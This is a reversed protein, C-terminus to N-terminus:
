IDIGEESLQQLLKKLKSNNPNWNRLLTIRDKLEQLQIVDKKITGLDLTEEDIDNVLDDVESDVVKKRDKADWTEVQTNGNKLALSGFTSQSVELTPANGIGRTRVGIQYLPLESQPPGDLKVAIVPVGKKKTMVLKKVIENEIKERIAQKETENTLENYQKYLEGVGFINVLSQRDMEVAPDEGFITKFDGLPEKPFLTDVIHTDNIIKQKMKNRREPSEEFASYLSDAMENDLGRLRSYIRHKDDIESDKSFSAFFKIDDGTKITEMSDVFQSPTVKSLYEDIQEESLGKIDNNSLGFVKQILWRKRKRIADPKPGFTQNFEKPNNLLREAVSEFTKRDSKLLESAVSIINNRLENYREPQCEKPLKVGLSEEFEKLATGYGGNVIFVKFGKKLSIGITKGDKTKVFMDASTGHGTSGVLENGEPTDWAFDEINDIGITDNLYDLVSVGSKVWEKTLVSDPNNAINLLEKQLETRAEEYDMESKLLEQIRKGAYVTVSEGTRSEATGMGVGKQSQAAEKKTMRIQKEVKESDVKRNKQQKEVDISVQTQGTKKNKKQVDPAHSFSSPGKVNQQPEEAQSQEGGASPGSQPQQSKDDGGLENNIADREKTGDKPLLKEAAIRGPNDKPNSLLNGVLGKQEKGDKNQYTVIKNLIPNKFIPKLREEESKDEENLLNEILQNKIESLGLDSLVESLVWIHERNKPNPIGSDIRYAWEILIEKIIQNKYLM